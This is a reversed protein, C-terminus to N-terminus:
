QDVGHETKTQVPGHADASPTTFPGIAVPGLLVTHTQFVGKVASVVTGAGNSSM